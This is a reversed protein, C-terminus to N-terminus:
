AEFGEIETTTGTEHVNRIHLYRTEYIHENAKSKEPSSTVIGGRKQKAPICQENKWGPLRGFERGVFTLM